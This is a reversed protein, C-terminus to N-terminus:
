QAYPDEYPDGANTAAGEGLEFQRNQLYMLRAQAYSDASDYLVSDITSGFKDRSNLGALAQATSRLAKESPDFVNGLPDTIADVAKGWAARESSPGLLPLEIFAGQPAGWVALTEGFDTSHPAIQFETAPDFLGALGLTSNMLFRSTAIAAGKFDGQLVSNAAVSPMSLNRSANNFLARFESPVVTAYAKSAPRVVTEDLGKNFAHVKRNQSEFPDLIGDPTRDMPPFETCGGLTMACVAFIACTKMIKHGALLSM